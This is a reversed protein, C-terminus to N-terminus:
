QGGLSSLIQECAPNSTPDLTCSAILQDAQEIVQRIFFLFGFVLVISTISLILGWLAWKNKNRKRQLLAFTIGLISLIGSPIITISLIISLIGLVVSAVGFSNDSNSKKEVEKAM